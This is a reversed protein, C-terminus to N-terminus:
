LRRYRTNGLHWGQSWCVCPLNQWSWCASMLGKRYLNYFFLYGVIKKLSLRTWFRAWFHHAILVTHALIKQFWTHKYLHVVRNWLSCTPTSFSFCHFGSDWRMGNCFWRPLSKSISTQIGFFDTSANLNGAGRHYVDCWCRCNLACSQLQLSTTKARARTPAFLSSGPQATTISSFSPKSLTVLCFLVLTSNSSHVSLFVVCHYSHELHMELSFHVSVNAPSTRFCVSRVTFSCTLVSM